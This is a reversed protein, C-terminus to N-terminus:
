EGRAKALAAYANALPESIRPMGGEALANKVVRDPILEAGM